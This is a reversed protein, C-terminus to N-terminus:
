RLEQIVGSRMEKPTSKITRTAQDLIAAQVRQRIQVPNLIVPSDQNKLNWTLMEQVAARVSDPDNNVIGAAWKNAISAEVTNHLNIDQRIDSEVRQAHAVDQPQIGTMKIFADTKSVDMVKQGKHDRYVGTQWMDIGQLMAQVARPTGQQFMRDLQGSELSEVGRQAQQYLGGMPGIANAIQQSKDTESRKFVGSLPILQQVGLRGQIDFPVGPVASVGHTLLSGASEGIVQVAKRRLYEKSNTNYGMLQGITDILNELDDAGPAGQLGAALFLISGALAKERAPLRSLFELYAITFQKFTFLTAGVAGRAWNPRNGKNYIGQTDDVANAAFEFPDAFAPRNQSERIANIKALAGEQIAMNFAAAFTIRRNFSEAVAFMSGWVRIGKRLWINSGFGRISEAYLQHLEQPETIGEKAARAMADGLPGTAVGGSAISLSSTLAKGAAIPDSFQSLYPLTMMVPQTLNTLASAISGGIFNVFLMSRLAQAEENPNQVYSILQAADAKVTGLEDPIASHARTMEGFHYNGSALRSQSTIFAALVRRVDEDYGQIGKRQILRKLASRSSAATKLFEQVTKYESLGAAQAFAVMSDLSLGRFMKWSETDLTGPTVVAEPYQEKMDRVMKNMDARSEFMGYFLTTLKGDANPSRLTEVRVTYRGFRMLPAYAENKLKQIRSQQEDSLQQLLAEKREAEKVNGASKLADIQRTIAESFMAFGHGADDRARAIISDLGEGKLMKAMESVAVHDLSLNIADRVHHFYEIQKDSMPPITIDGIEGAEDKAKLTVGARLQDDTPLTEALTAGFIAHSTAKLDRDIQFTRTANKFVENLKGLRPLVDEGALDAAEHAFASVDQIYRQVAVFVPRFEPITEAKHFQTNVRKNLWTLRDSTKVSDYVKQVAAGVLGDTDLRFMPPEEAKQVATQKELHGRAAALVGSVDADSMALSFGLKRLLNRIAAALLKWGSVGDLSESAARDALVEEVGKAITLVKGHEAYADIKAQAAIRIDPNTDYIRQMLPALADGFLGQLGFHGAVEHLVTFQVDRETAHMNAAIWVEGKYFM